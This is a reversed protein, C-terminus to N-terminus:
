KENMQILYNTFASCSVLMFIADAKTIKSKEMLCHRIGEADSTYGYLKSFSEKLAPHLNKKKELEKIADGLTAKNKGSIQKAISEVASISEKISARFNPNKRDGLFSLAAKIHEQAGSNITKNNITGEVASIEQQSVIEILKNDIFRYASNEQELCHNFLNVVNNQTKNFDFEVCAEIFDLIEHWEQSFFERKLFEMVKEDYKIHNFESYIFPITDVQYKFHHIWIQEAFSKFLSRSSRVADLYIYTVNWLSNKLDNDMSERQIQKVKPTKGIRQSFKM